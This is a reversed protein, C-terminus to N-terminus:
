DGGDYVGLGVVDASLDAMRGATIPPVEQTVRFDSVASPMETLMYCVGVPIVDEILDHTAGPRFRMGDFKDFDIPQDSVGFKHGDYAMHKPM